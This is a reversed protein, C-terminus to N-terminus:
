ESSQHFKLIVGPPGDKQFEPRAPSAAALLFGALNALECLLVLGLAQLDDPYDGALVFQASNLKLLMVAKGENMQDVCVAIELLPVIGASPRKEHQRIM